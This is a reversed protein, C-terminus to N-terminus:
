CGAPCKAVRGFGALEEKGFEREGHVEAIELQGALVQRVGQRLADLVFHRAHDVDDGEVDCLVLRTAIGWCAIRWLEVLWGRDLLGLGL